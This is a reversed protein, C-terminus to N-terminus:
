SVVSTSYFPQIVVTCIQIELSGFCRSVWCLCGMITAQSEEQNRRKLMISLISFIPLLILAISM